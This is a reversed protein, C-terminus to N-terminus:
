AALIARRRRARFRGPRTARACRRPLHRDAKSPGHDGHSAFCISAVVGGRSREEGRRSARSPSPTARREASAACREDDLGVMQFAAISNM